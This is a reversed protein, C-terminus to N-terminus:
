VIWYIDDLADCARDLAHYKDGWTRCGDECWASYAAEISRVTHLTDLNHDLVVNLAACLYDYRQRLDYFAMMIGVNRGITDIMEAKTLRMLRKGSETVARGADYGCLSFWDVEYGDYGVCQFRNGILAVTCDDFMDAAGYLQEILQECEASLDSFEMRYGAGDDEDGDLVPETCNEEAWRLDDCAEGIERLEDIITDYGMTALAPRKYRLAKARQRAQDAKVRRKWESIERKDM